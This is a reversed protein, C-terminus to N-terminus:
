RTFWGKKDAMKPSDVLSNPEDTHTALERHVSGSQQGGLGLVQWNCHDARAMAYGNNIVPRKSKTDYAVLSIGNSLTHREPEPFAWPQPPVVEPRASM